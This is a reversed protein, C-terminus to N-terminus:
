KVSDSGAAAARVAESRFLLVSGAHRDYRDLVGSLLYVSLVSIQAASLVCLDVSGKDGSDRHHVPGDAGGFAGDRAPRGPDPGHDRLPFLSRHHHIFDGFRM